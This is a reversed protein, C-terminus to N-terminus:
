WGRYWCCVSSWHSVWDLPEVTRRVGHGKGRVSAPNTPSIWHVDVGVTSSDLRILADLSKYRQSGIPTTPEVEPNFQALALLVQREFKEGASRSDGFRELGSEFSDLENISMRWSAAAVFGGGGSGLLLHIEGLNFDMSSIAKTMRLDSPEAPRIVLDSIWAPLALYKVGSFVIDVNDPVSVTAPRRLLLQRHSVRYEWVQFRGGESATTM